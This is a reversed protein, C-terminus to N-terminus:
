SIVEMIKLLYYIRDRICMQNGKYDIVGERCWYVAAGDFPTSVNNSVGGGFVHVSM